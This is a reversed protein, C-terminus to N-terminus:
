CAQTRPAVVQTRQYATLMLAVAFSFALPLPYWTSFLLFDDDDGGECGTLALLLTLLLAYRGLNNLLQM